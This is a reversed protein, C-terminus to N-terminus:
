PRSLKIGISQTSTILLRMLSTEKYNLKSCHTMTYGPSDLIFDFKLSVHGRRLDALPPGAALNDIRNPKETFILDLTSKAETAPM